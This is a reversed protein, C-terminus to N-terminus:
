VYVNNILNASVHLKCHRTTFLPLWFLFFPLRCRVQKDMKAEERMRKAVAEDQKRKVEIDQKRKAEVEDNKRKAEAEAQKRQLEVASKDYIYTQAAVAIM